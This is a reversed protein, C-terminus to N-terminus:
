NRIHINWGSFKAHPVKIEEIGEPIIIEEANNDFGVVKKGGSSILCGLSEYFLETHFRYREYSFGKLKIHKM